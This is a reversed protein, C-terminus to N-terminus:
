RREAPFCSPQNHIVHSYNHPVHEHILRVSPVNFTEFTSQDVPESSLWRDSPDCFHNLGLWNCTTSRLHTGCIGL